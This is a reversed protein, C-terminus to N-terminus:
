GLQDANCIIKWLKSHPELQLITCGIECAEKCVSYLPMGEVLPGSVVSFILDCESVLQFRTSEWGIELTSYGALYRVADAKKLLNLVRQHQHLAIEGNTFGSPFIVRYPISAAYLIEAFQMGIGPELNTYGLEIDLKALWHRITNRLWIRQQESPERSSLGIAGIVM